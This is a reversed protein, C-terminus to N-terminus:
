FIWLNFWPYVSVWYCIKKVNILNGNQHCCWCVWSLCCNPWKNETGSKYLLGNNYSYEQRLGTQPLRQLLWHKYGDVWLPCQFDWTWCFDGYSCIQLVQSIQNIQTWQSQTLKRKFKEFYFHTQQSLWNSHANSKGYKWFIFCHLTYVFTHSMQLVFVNSLFILLASTDQM